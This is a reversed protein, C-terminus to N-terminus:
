QCFRQYKTYYPYQNFSPLCLIYMSVLRCHTITNTKRTKIIKILPATPRHKLDDAGAGTGAGVDFVTGVGLGVGVGVGLGVGVATDAGVDFGAGAGVRAGIGVGFGTADTGATTVPSKRALTTECFDPLENIKEDLSGVISVM